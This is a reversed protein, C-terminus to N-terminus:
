STKLENPATLSSAAPWDNETSDRQIRSSGPNVPFDGVIPPLGFLSM